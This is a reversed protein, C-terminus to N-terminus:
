PKGKRKFIGAGGLLGISLLVLSIPEPTSYQGFLTAEYLRFKPNGGGNMVDVGINLKGDVDLAEIADSSLVFSQTVVPGTKILTGLDFGDGTLKWTGKGKTKGFVVSLTGSHVHLDNLSIGGINDTIDHEWGGSPGGPFVWIAGQPGPGVGPAGFDVLDYYVLAEAQRPNVILYLLLVGISVIWIYRKRM